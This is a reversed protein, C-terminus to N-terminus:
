SPIAQPFILKLTMMSCSILWLDTTIARLLSCNEALGATNISQPFSGEMYLFKTLHSCSIYIKQIEVTPLLQQHQEPREM